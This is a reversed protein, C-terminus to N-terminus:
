LNAAPVSQYAESFTGPSNNITANRFDIGYRELFYNWALQRTTYFNQGISELKQKFFVPDTQQVNPTFKNAQLVAYQKVNTACTLNRSPRTAAVLATFLLFLTLRLM